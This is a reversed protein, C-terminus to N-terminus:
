FGCTGLLLGPLGTFVIAILAILAAIAALGALFGGNASDAAAPRTEQRGAMVIALSAGAAILTSIISALPVIGIGLLTMEDFGRACAVAAFVYIFLFDAAWILLGAVTHLATRPFRGTMMPVASPLVGM